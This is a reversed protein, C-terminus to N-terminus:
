DSDACSRPALFDCRGKTVNWWRQLSPGSAAGQSLEVLYLRLHSLFLAEELRLGNRIDREISGKASYPLTPFRAMISDVDAPDVNNSLAKVQSELAALKARGDPQGNNIQEEVLATLRPREIQCGLRQAELMAAKRADGEYSGDEFAVAEIVIKPTQPGGSHAGPSSGGDGEPAVLCSIGDAGVFGEDEGAVPFGLHMEGTTGPSMLHEGGPGLNHMKCRGAADFVSIVVGDAALESTNRLSLKYEARDQDVDEVVMSSTENVIEPQAADPPKATVLKLQVPQLGFQSLESVTISEGPHIVYNGVPQKQESSSPSAASDFELFVLVRLENGKLRYSFGLGTPQPHSKDAHDWGPRWDLEYFVASAEEGDDSMREFDPAHNARTIELMWNDSDSAGPHQALGVPVLFLLLL